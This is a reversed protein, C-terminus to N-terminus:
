KLYNQPNVPNGRHRIEFHVHPGTSNGTNGSYAIIQGRTVTQGVKVNLRSNHAYRTEVNNGHDVIVL